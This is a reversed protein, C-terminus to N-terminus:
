VHRIYAWNKLIENWSLGYSQFIRFNAFYVTLSCHLNWKAISFTKEIQFRLTNHGRCTLIGVWQLGPMRNRIHSQLAPDVQQRQFRITIMAHVNIHAVSVNTGGTPAPNDAHPWRQHKGGFASARKVVVHPVWRCWRTPRPAYQCM